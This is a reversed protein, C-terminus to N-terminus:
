RCQLLLDRTYLIHARAHERAACADREQLARNIAAHQRAIGDPYRGLRSLTRSLVSYIANFYRSYFLQSFSCVIMHHSSEAILMHFQLDAKAKELTSDARGSKAQSRARMQDFEQALRVLEEDTARQAAFWAAEGELVARAEMIQLQFEIDEGRGHLPLELHQELLNHCRSRGGQQTQIVGTERLGALAERVSGRSVSFREMLARESPLPQGPVWDGDLLLRELEYQLKMILALAKTLGTTLIANVSM